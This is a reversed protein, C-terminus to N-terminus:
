YNRPPAVALQAVFALVTEKGRRLAVEVTGWPNRLEALTLDEEEKM